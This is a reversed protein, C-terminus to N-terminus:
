PPPPPSPTQQPQVVFSQICPLMEEYKQCASKELDDTCRIRLNHFCLREPEGRERIVEFVLMDELIRAVPTALPISIELLFTFVTPELIVKLCIWELNYTCYGCRNNYMILYQPTNEQTKKVFWNGCPVTTDTYQHGRQEVNQSFELLHRQDEEQVIGWRQLWEDTHRIQPNDMLMTVVRNPYIIIHKGFKVCEGIPIEKTDVAATM